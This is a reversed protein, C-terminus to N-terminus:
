EPLAADRLERLRRFWGIREARSYGANLGSTSPVIFALASAIPAPQLGPRAQPDFALRYGHLGNFCVIRPRYRKLKRALSIGGARWEARSVQDARDSSRKVLDTLGLGFEPLRADEECTLPAPVLGAQYLAPWFLNGPRAYYHGRRASFAGPNLGVFVIDLNPALYDPLADPISVQM